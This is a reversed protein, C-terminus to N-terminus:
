MRSVGFHNSGEIKSSHIISLCIGVVTRTDRPDIIGDDILRASTYYANSQKEVMELFMQKRIGMQNEDLKQNMKLARQRAILDMVGGLQDSGMVSCKSNPFSFLFRPKYARGNMAYNGAGYSAGVIITISPVGSNSLANILQSGHKIIGGQEYSKGVMFGTVNQLFLLPINRQNCLHIFQTAKQAASSFIVGNNGLIGIQIGHIKAFGTIMTTGYEHKFESFRSGDTIRAILERIDFPTKISSPLIGLIENQDYIPEEIKLFNEIPLQTAKKWQIQYVVNRALKIAELENDALYDALGSIKSHMEAGGLSEDDVVEGTSMRVLPPGALFVKAKEKVFINYDSMGPSYAGGATSSGMVICITPIGSKSRVAIDRFSGGGEHFVEDQQTLDAGGTEIFSIVPLRNEQAITAIRKMKKVSYANLAGGRISAVNATIICETNHVLGIGSIVSAGPSPVGKCEFGAIPCLELFPSDEDLLYEIRQMAHLRPFSNQKKNKKENKDISENIEKTEKLEKSNQEIGINVKDNVDNEVPFFIINENKLIKEELHRTANDNYTSVGGHTESLIKKLTEVSKLNFEFNKKFGEDSPQINSRLIPTQIQPLIM